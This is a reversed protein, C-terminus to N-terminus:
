SLLYSCFLKQDRERLPPPQQSTPHPRKEKRRVQTHLVLQRDHQRFAFCYGCRPTPLVPLFLAAAKTLRIPALTAGQSLEADHEEISSAPTEQQIEEDGLKVTQKNRRRKGRWRDSRALLAVAALILAGGLVQVPSITEGLVIAALVVAVIPEFTSLTSASTPGIRKLGAFFTVFALVTSILAIAIIAIWGTSTTPYTMGRVAVIGTYVGATSTIIVTTSSLPGSRRMIRSGLLIYIAYDVAAAIGLLIGLMSGGGSIRITLATGSLALFLASIKVRTLHEKLFIASLATVLAPYIYLLLAVLGASAMRLALFYALSEGVYGIAGLLMLEFLILGRPYATRGMIMILNMVVAAISFRLFLVTVPEAGANYALQAFIPMVGFSAASIIILMMGFRRHAIASQLYKMIVDDQGISINVDKM